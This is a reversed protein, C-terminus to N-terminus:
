QKFLCISKEFNVSTKPMFSDLLEYNASKSLCVCAM